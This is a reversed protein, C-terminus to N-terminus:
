LRVIFADAYGKKRVERLERRCVWYSNYTGYFYRYLEDQQDYTRNINKFDLRKISMECKSALVQISFTNKAANVSKNTTSNKLNATKIKAHGFGLDKLKQVAEDALKKDNYNDIVITYFPKKSIEIHGLEYFYDVYEKGKMKRGMNYSGKETIQINPIKVNQELKCTTLKGKNVLVVNANQFGSLVEKKLYKRAESEEQFRGLVYHYKGNSQFVKVSNHPAFSEANLINKSQQLEITYFVTTEVNKLKSIALKATGKKRVSQSTIKKKKKNQDQDEKEESLMSAIQESNFVTHLDLVKADLYGQSKIESVLGEADDKSNTIGSLYHYEGNESSLEVVDEIDEFYDTYVPYKFKAIEVAYTTGGATSSAFNIDFFSSFSGITGATLFFCILFYINRM